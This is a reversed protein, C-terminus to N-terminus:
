PEADCGRGRIRRERSQSVGVAPDRRIRRERSQSVGVAPDRRIRRERSQSVGVAPDRRFVTFDGVFVAGGVSWETSPAFGLGGSGPWAM